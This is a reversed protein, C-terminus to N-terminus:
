EAFIRCKEEAIFGRAQKLEPEQAATGWITVAGVPCDPCVLLSSLRWSTGSGWFYGWPPIQIVQSKEYILAFVNKRKFKRGTQLEALYIFRM